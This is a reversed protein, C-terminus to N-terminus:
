CSARDNKLLELLEADHCKWLAEPNYNIGFEFRLMDGADITVPGRMASRCYPSDRGSPMILRCSQFYTRRTGQIEFRWALRGPMHTYTVPSVSRPGRDSEAIARFDSLELRGRLM